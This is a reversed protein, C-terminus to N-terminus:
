SGSRAEGVPPLESLSQRIKELNPDLKLAQEWEERAKLPDALMVYISGKLVHTEVLMPERSQLENLKTLADVFRRKAALEQIEFIDQLTKRIRQVQTDNQPLKAPKLSVSITTLANDNPSVAIEKTEFGDKEFLIVFPTDKPLATKSFDIPTQGLVNKQTGNMHSVVADQPNSQFRYYSACANLMLASTLVIAKM